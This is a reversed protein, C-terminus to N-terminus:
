DQLTELIRLYYNTVVNRKFLFFSPPGIVVGRRNNIYM